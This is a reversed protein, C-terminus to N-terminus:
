VACSEPRLMLEGEGTVVAKGACAACSRYIRGPYEDAILKRPTEEMRAIQDEDLDCEFVDKQVPVGSRKLREFIRARRADGLVGYRVTSFM